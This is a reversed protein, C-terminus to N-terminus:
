RTDDMACRRREVDALARALRNRDSDLFLSTQGGWRISLFSILTVVAFLPYVRAIRHQWFRAVNAPTPQEHLYLHGMLFESLAFFLMLGIQGAGGTIYPMKLENGLHACLVILAALGRLGDLSKIHANALPCGRM